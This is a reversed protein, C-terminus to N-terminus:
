KSSLRKIEQKIDDCILDIDDDHIWKLKPYRAKQAKYHSGQPIVVCSFLSFNRFREINDPVQDVVMVVIKQPDMQTIINDLEPTSFFEHVNYHRFHDRVQDITPNLKKFIM